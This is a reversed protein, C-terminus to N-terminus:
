YFTHLISRSKSSVTLVLLCKYLVCGWLPCSLVVSLIAPQSVTFFHKSLQTQYFITGDDTCRDKRVSIYVFHCPNGLSQCLYGGVPTTWPQSCDKANSNKLSDEPLYLVRFFVWIFSSCALLSPVSLYCGRVNNLNAPFLVVVRDFFDNYIAILHVLSSKVNRLSCAANLSDLHQIYVSWVLAANLLRM